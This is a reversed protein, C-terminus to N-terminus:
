LQDKNRQSYVTETILRAGRRFIVYSFVWQFLVFFRNKFGVLYFLHVFLWLLWAVFGTLKFSSVEAVARNRGITAMSGKDFYKFIKKKRGAVKSKIAKAVFIGQQIAVASVGPLPRGEDDAFHAIDGIAYVNPYNELSCDKTVKIRGGRDLEEGVTGSLPNAGVGAAWVIVSAEITEDELHVVGDTIDKVTKGTLVEVKLSELAQKTYKSSKDDFHVLVRDSRELLIVRLDDGKVRRYDEAMANRVLESLAGALEVGTPGGGIVVFTLLKRRAAADDQREAREVKFLVERRISLADEISKLGLTHQQWHDNGFYATQAGAAVVLYDYNITSEDNLYLRQQRIDIREVSGMVVWCNKVSRLVSRIPIAIEAPSLVATAVQYLLPQFLHHNSRDILTVRVPANKLSKATQLGAFGGGIIVVHPKDTTKAEQNM